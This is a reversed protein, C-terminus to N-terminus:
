EDSVTWSGAAVLKGTWIDLVRQGGFLPKTVGDLTNAGGPWTDRTNEYTWRVGVTRGTEFGPRRATQTGAAPLMPDLTFSQPVVREEGPALLIFDAESIVYGHPHPDPIGLPAGGDTSLFITSIGARFAEPRPLFIRLGSPSVNKFTLEITRMPVRDIKIGRAFTARIELRGDTAHLSASSAPKADPRPTRCGSIAMAVLAISASSIFSLTTGM